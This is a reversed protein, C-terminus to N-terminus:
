LKGSDGQCSDKGKGAACFMNSTIGEESYSLKCVNQDIIKIIVGRLFEESEMENKTDGFGSVLVDMNPWVVKSEVPLKIAKQKDNFNISDKVQILAFDNDFPTKDYDPHLIIKAVEYVKGGRSARSSGVRIRYITPTKEAFCHAASLIWKNSIISGGCHHAGNKSIEALYPVNEIDIIQGGVIRTGGGFPNQDIENESSNDDCSSFNFVLVVLILVKFIM